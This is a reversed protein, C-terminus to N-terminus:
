DVIENTSKVFSIKIIEDIKINLQFSYILTNSFMIEGAEKSSSQYIFM